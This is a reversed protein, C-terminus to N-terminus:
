AAPAIEFECWHRYPREPGYIINPFHAHHLADPFVQDELCFGSHKRYPRGGLGPVPIDTMVGDYFQVAPRDSWLSLTLAGDPDVVRALPQSFDRGTPLVLNLDYDIGQGAADRLRRPQRLDFPTGDVPLIAGTPVLDDARVESYASADIWVTHDLVTDTTGLNFYHHQVLSIPTRRDADASFEMRLRNGILTYLVSFRVTGPFGMEGEPSLYTFRVGNAPEDAEGKWVRRGLGVPGGHLTNSGENAELAFTEGDLEFSAGRIRNAVRGTVACFHPSYDLYDALTEFGQVVTRLEGAVPVRWDRIAAGWEIIDIEVGTDSRLAFQRVDQGKHEGFGSIDISM